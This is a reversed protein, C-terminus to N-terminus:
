WRTLAVFIAIFHGSDVETFCDIWLDAELDSKKPLDIFNQEM